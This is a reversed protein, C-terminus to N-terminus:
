FKRLTMNFTHYKIIVKAKKLPMKYIRSSAIKGKVPLTEKETERLVEVEFGNTVM